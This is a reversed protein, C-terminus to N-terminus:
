FTLTVFLMKSFPLPMGILPEGDVKKELMLYKVTRLISIHVASLTHRLSHRLTSRLSHKVTLLSSHHSTSRRGHVCHGPKQTLDLCSRKMGCTFFGSVVLIQTLDLFLLETLLLYYYYYYYYYLLVPLPMCNTQVGNKSYQNGNATFYTSYEGSLTPTGSM